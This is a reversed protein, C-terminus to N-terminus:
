RRRLWKCTAETWPSSWDRRFPRSPSAAWWRITFMLIRSTPGTSRRLYVCMFRAATPLGPVSLSTGMTVQSFLDTGGPTTGADLKFQTAGAAPTWTFTVSNSPLPQGPPPTLLIAYGSGGIEFNGSLTTTASPAAISQVAHRNGNQWAQFTNPVQILPLGAPFSSPPYTLTQPGTWEVSHQAGSQWLFSQPAPYNTGDLNFMLGGANAGITTIVPAGAGLGASNILEFVAGPAGIGPDLVGLTYPDSAVLDPKGDGNFDGGAMWQLANGAEFLLPPQFGKNGTNLLVAVNNSHTNGVALDLKGDGDYDAIVIPRPAAGVTVTTPNSFAGGGTGFLTTVTAADLDAVAVDPFGDGNL